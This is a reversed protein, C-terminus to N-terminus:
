PRNLVAEAKGNRILMYVQKKDFFKNYYDLDYM